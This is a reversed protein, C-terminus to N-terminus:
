FSRLTITTQRYVVVSAKQPKGRGLDQSLLLVRREDDLMRLLLVCRGEFSGVCFGRQRKRRESREAQVNM